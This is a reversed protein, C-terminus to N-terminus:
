SRNGGVDRFPMRPSAFPVYVVKADRETRQGFELRMNFDRPSKAVEFRSLDARERRFGLAHALHEVAQSTGDFSSQHGLDCGGSGDDHDREDDRKQSEGAHRPQAIEGAGRPGEAMRGNPGRPRETGRGRPWEAMRGGRGKPGEAKRGKPREAGRGRGWGM